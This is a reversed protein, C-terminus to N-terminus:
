EAYAVEGEEGGKQVWYRIGKLIREAELDWTPWGSTKPVYPEDANLENSEDREDSM